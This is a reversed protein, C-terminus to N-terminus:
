ALEYFQLAFLISDFMIKGTIIKKTDMQSVKFLLVHALFQLVSHSFDHILFIEATLM